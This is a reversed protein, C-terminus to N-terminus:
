YGPCPLGRPFFGEGGNLRLLILVEHGPTAKKPSSIHRFGDEEDSVLKMDLVPARMVPGYHQMGHDRWDEVAEAKGDQVILYVFRHDGHEGEHDWRLSVRGRRLRFVKVASALKEEIEERTLKSIDQTFPPAIVENGDIDEARCPASRARAPDGAFVVMAIAVLSATKM